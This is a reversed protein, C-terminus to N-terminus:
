GGAPWEVLGVAFARLALELVGDQCAVLRGPADLFTEPNSMAAAATTEDLMWVAASKSGVALRVWQLEGTLNATLVRARADAQIMALGTVRSPHSMQLPFLREAGAMAAFVHYVPFVEGPASPFADPRPRGGVGELLGRWGTTEFYTLSHVDPRPALQGLSGVTWAAAFLSMQRPDVSSPLGTPPEAEAATAVPNFRPRLTVPSIVVPGDAFRMASEVTAPQAELNEVLSELDFAHVQPNMSFCPLVPPVAPPRHRNLEAFNANTGAAVPVQAQIESLRACAMELRPKPSCLGREDFVLWLSVPPKPTSSAWLAALRDLEGAPHSSLFLGAHLRAGLARAVRGAVQFHAEWGADGLHLDVRLHGPRLRRLLRLAEQSPPPEDAALCFGIAPARVSELVMGGERSITAVSGRAPGRAGIQGKPGKRGKPGQDVWAVVAVRVRQEVRTGPEVLVPFPRALPTGYTKFSADTWNRQDETEFVEGEFEVEVRMGPVPEHMMLRIDQFPQHPSIAEPFITRELAGGTHVIGCPQGVCGELPHLVCLGIRNRWFRSRSEGEFEFTVQGSAEGRVRGLWVFHIEGQRHECQFSLDFGGESIEFKLNSIEFPVTGWNRDRVAGYVGRILEVEGWAIRRLFATAPDFSMTLPGARLASFTRGMEEGALGGQRGKSAGAGWPQRVIGRDILARRAAERRQFDTAPDNM